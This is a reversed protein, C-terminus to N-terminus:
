RQVLPLMVRTGATMRLPTLPDGLLAYTFITEQCCASGTFLDRFGASTLAGLPVAREIGVDPAPSWLARFFGRQLKDHGYSVGLGTPGWVAVAGGKEHLLLAEDVTMGVYSPWQFASSLCTLALVVPLR